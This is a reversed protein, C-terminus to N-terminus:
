HTFASIFLCGIPASFKMYHVRLPFPMRLRWCPIEEKGLQVVSCSSTPTVSAVIHRDRLNLLRDCMSLSNLILNRFEVKSQDEGAENKAICTYRAGDSSEVNLFYLRDRRLSSKLRQIKDSTTIPVGNKTWSFEVTPDVKIPCQLTLPHNLQVELSTFRNEMLPPKLIFVVIDKETRGVKNVAICTYRGADSVKAGKIHFHHKDDLYVDPDKIAHGNQVFREFGYFSQNAPKGVRKCMDPALSLPTALLRLCCLLAPDRHEERLLGATVIFGRLGLDKEKATRREKRRIRECEKLVHDCDFCCAVKALSLSSQEKTTLCVM